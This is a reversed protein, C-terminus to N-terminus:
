RKVAICTFPRVAFTEVIRKKGNVREGKYWNFEVVFDIKANSKMIRATFNSNKESM